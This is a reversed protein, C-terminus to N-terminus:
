ILAGGFIKDWKEWFERINKVNIEGEYLEHILKEGKKIFEKVDKEKFFNFDEKDFYHNFEFRKDSLSQNDSGGNRVSPKKDEPPSAGSSRMDKPTHNQAKDYIENIRRNDEIIEDKFSQNKAKFKKCSLPMGRKSYTVPHQEEYFGCNECIEEKAKFKKCVINVYWKDKHKWEPQGCECINQTRGKRRIISASRVNDNQAKFKKCPCNSVLCGVLKKSDVERHFGKRHGCECRQNNEM